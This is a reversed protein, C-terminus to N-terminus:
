KEKATDIIEFLLLSNNIINWKEQFITLRVEVCIISSKLVLLVRMSVNSLLKCFSASVESTQPLCFLINAYKPLVDEM